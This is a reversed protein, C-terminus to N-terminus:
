VGEFPDGTMKPQVDWGAIENFRDQLAILTTIYCRMDQVQEYSQAQSAVTRTFIQIMRNIEQKWVNSSVIMKAQKAYGNKKNPNEELEFDYQAFTKGMAEEVIKRADPRKYLPKKHGKTPM